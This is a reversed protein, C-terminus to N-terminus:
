NIEIYIHLTTDIKRVHRVYVKLSYLNTRECEKNLRNEFDAYGFVYGTDEVGTFFRNCGYFDSLKRLYNTFQEWMYRNKMRNITFKFCDNSVYELTLNGFIFYHDRNILYKGDSFEPTYDFCGRFEIDDGNYNKRFLHSRFNANVQLYGDHLRRILEKPTECIYFRSGLYRIFRRRKFRRKNLSRVIHQNAMEIFTDIGLNNLYFLLIDSTEVSFGRRLAKLIRYPKIHTLSNLQTIRNKHALICTPTAVFGEVYNLSVQLHVMDFTTYLDWVSIYESLIFQIPVLAGRLWVTIINECYGIYANKLESLTYILDNLCENRTYYTESVIYIDLDPSYKDIYNFVDDDSMSLLASILGGSLTLGRHNRLFDRTIFGNTLDELIEYIDAESRWVCEIEVLREIDCNINRREDGVMHILDVVNYVLLNQKDLFNSNDMMTVNKYFISMYDELLEIMREPIQKENFLEVLTNYLCILHPEDKFAFTFKNYKINETMTSIFISLDEGFTDRDISTKLIDLIDVCMYDLIEYIELREKMYRSFIKTFDDIKFGELNIRLDKSNGNFQKMCTFYPIDKLQEEDVLISRDMGENYVLVEM